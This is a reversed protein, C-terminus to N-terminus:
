VNADCPAYAPWVILKKERNTKRGLTEARHCGLNMVYEDNLISNSMFNSPELSDVNSVRAICTTNVPFHYCAIKSVIRCRHTKVKILTSSVTVTNALWCLSKLNMSLLRSPILSVWNDWRRLIINLWEYRTQLISREVISLQRLKAVISRRIIQRRILETIYKEVGTAVNKKNIKWLLDPM